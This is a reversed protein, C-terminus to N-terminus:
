HKFFIAILHDLLQPIYDIWKVKATMIIIKRPSSTCRSLTDRCKRKFLFPVPALPNKQFVNRLLADGLIFNISQNIAELYCFTKRSQIDSTTSLNTTVVTTCAFAVKHLQSSISCRAFTEPGNWNLLLPTCEAKRENQGSRHFYTRISQNKFLGCNNTLIENNSM